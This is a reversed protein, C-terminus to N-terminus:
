STSGDANPRGDKTQLDLMPVMTQYWPEGPTRVIVCAEWGDVGYQRGRYEADTPGVRTNWTVLEGVRYPTSM